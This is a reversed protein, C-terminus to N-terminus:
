RFGQSFTRPRTLSGLCRPYYGQHLKPLPAKEDLADAPWSRAVMSLPLELGLWCPDVGLLSRHWLRGVLSWGVLARRM